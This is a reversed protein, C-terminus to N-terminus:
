STAPVAAQARKRYHHLPLVLLVTIVLILGMVALGASFSGTKEKAWGIVYPGAFGGLAAICNIYAFGAAAGIGTMIRGPIAWFIARAATVGVLAVTLSAMSSVSGHAFVAFGLGVAGVACSWALNGLSNGSRDSHRAWLLMGVSAFAYPIASVLGIELPTSLFQKLILPLWIGVGYSGVTFGFQILALLHVRPDRLAAAFDKRPKERQESALMHKILGREPLTLWKAKDPSDALVFLAWIGVLATPTGELLFMWKWGSLGWVGDMYLLSGSLPSGILSSLPIALLFWALISTRYRAPFWSSLFFTVGPFFGAESLGLLLRAGYYSYPGLVLAMVASCIGWTIMIRALWLRAGYRFLLMNSPIEFLCYALFFIGAGFGFHSESLGIDKNMTLAAFGINTRDLYNLLYGLILVPLFRWAIKKIVAREAENDPIADIPNQM